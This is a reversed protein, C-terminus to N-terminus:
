PICNKTAEISDRGGHEIDIIVYICGSALPTLDNSVPPLIQWQGEFVVLWVSTNGPGDEYSYIESPDKPIRQRAESLTIKEALVPKPEGQTFRLRTTSLEARAAIVAELKSNISMSRRYATWTSEPIPTLYTDDETTSVSCSLLTITAVLITWILLLSIKNHNRM